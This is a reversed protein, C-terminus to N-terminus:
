RRGTKSEARDSALRLAREVTRGVFGSSDEPLKRLTPYLSEIGLEAVHYAVLCRIGVGPRELLEELLQIYGTQVSTFYPGARELKRAPSLDDVVAMVAERLPTELFNELLELSSAKAQRKGSTAGRYLNRVDEDPYLLSLLQFLREVSQKEKEALLDVIMGQVQTARSPEKRNARAIRLEWEMFRFVSTLTGHLQKELVTRNLELEPQGSRLYLLSRLSRYRVSGDPEADLNHLLIRAAAEPAFEAVTRPAHLRIRFDVAPDSLVQELSELAQDGIAVLTARAQGRLAREPLMQLLKGIFEPHRIEAMARAVTKRTTSDPVESLILLIDQYIAGPSYLIAQALALKEERSGSGALTEIAELAKASQSADGYSVLGVLATTRVEPSEEHQFREYLKATPAVWALARLTASRIEPEARELLRETIPIFDTRGARSFLELATIVVSSSPHYLILAPLLKVRDQEALLEMVAVVEADNSSNLRAILTELSVLDLQPFEFRTDIAVESLSERFLDLYHDRISVAIRMWAAALVLVLGGLLITPEVLPTIALILLSAAAQGGRQGLVDIFAKVRSRLERAVPVYLVETATRHLSHRLAGDFAKGILAAILGGGAAIGLGTVGLLLPLLSLVRDIALTRVLWGVLFLQALLSLVNLAFYSAAFFSALHPAEITNAVASKFLFDVLTFTITSLLVIGGLRRLYQSNWTTEFLHLPNGDFSETRAAPQSGSGETVPKLHWPGFM